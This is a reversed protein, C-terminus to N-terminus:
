KGKRIFLNNTLPSGSGQVISCNFMKCNVPFIPFEHFKKKLLFLNLTGWLLISRFKTAKVIKIKSGFRRRLNQFIQITMFPNKIKWVEWVDSFSIKKTSSNLTGFNQFFISRELQLFTLNQYYRRVIWLELIRLNINFFPFNWSKSLGPIKEVGERDECLYM